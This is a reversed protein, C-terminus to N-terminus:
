RHSSAASCLMHGSSAHGATTHVLQLGMMKKKLNSRVQARDHV